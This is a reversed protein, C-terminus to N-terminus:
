SLKKQKAKLIIRNSNLNNCTVLTLEKENKKYNFIPSLDSPKVEYINYVYYIYKNGNINYIIIEDDKSLNSIKSFFLSNDYNHGAICINGNDNPTKGYFRCPAIKLLNENIDSFIPYYLNIKQIEIMGFLKNYGEKDLENKTTTYIKYINYNDILDNSINAEKELYYANYIHLIITIIVIIISITLQFSFWNRKKLKNSNKDLKTNLIQNM